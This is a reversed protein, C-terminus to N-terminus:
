ILVPATLCVLTPVFVFAMLCALWCYEAAGGYLRWLANMCWILVVLHVCLWLLHAARCDLLGLPMVLALTWPPNWMLIVQGDVCVSRELEEVRAPDYPNEGHLNLRGAAWYEVFDYLPLSTLGRSSSGLQVWMIALAAILALVLLSVRLSPHIASLQSM